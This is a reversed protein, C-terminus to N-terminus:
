VGEVLIMQTRATEQRIAKAKAYEPSSWWAKAQAASPFEIIVFREPSWTGEITELMGGRAVFSGGYPLLSAPVLQKYVDYKEKNVVEIQVVLFASM